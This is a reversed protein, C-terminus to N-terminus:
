QGRPLRCVQVSCARGGEHKGSVQPVPMACRSLVFFYLPLPLAVATFSFIGTNLRDGIKPLFHLRPTTGFLGGVPSLPRLPRRFLISRVEFLSVASRIILTHSYPLHLRSCFKGSIWCCCSSPIDRCKMPQINRAQLAEQHESKRRGMECHATPEQM